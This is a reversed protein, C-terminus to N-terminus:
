NMILQEKIYNYIVRSTDSTYHLGDRSSYGVVKLYSNVDIIKIGSGILDGQMNINFDDIVENTVSYGSSACLEDDVPNILMYYVQANTQSNLSLLLEKYKKTGSLVDNVGLGIVIKTNEDSMSIIEDMHNSLFKYGVGNEAIFTDDAEACSSMQVFRSDGVFIYKENENTKDSHQTQVPTPSFAETTAATTKPAETTTAEETTRVEETTTVAETTNSLSNNETTVVQETTATTEPEETDETTETSENNTEKADTSTATEIFTDGRDAKQRESLILGSVHILLFFLFGWFCIKIFYKM